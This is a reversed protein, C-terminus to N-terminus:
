EIKMIDAFGTIELIEMVDETVNRVIMEGQKNMVKQASLLVRLGASSIYNLGKLDFVLKKVGYYSDNVQKELEFANTGDLRGEVALTVTDNETTKRVNLM